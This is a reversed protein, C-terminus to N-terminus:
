RIEQNMTIVVERSASLPCDNWFWSLQSSNSSSYSADQYESFDLSDRVSRFSDIRCIRAPDIASRGMPKLEIEIPAATKRFFYSLFKM